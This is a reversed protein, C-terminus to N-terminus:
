CCPKTQWTWTGVGYNSPNFLGATYNMVQSVDIKTTDMTMKAGPTVCDQQGACYTFYQTASDPNGQGGVSQRLGQDEFQGSSAGALFFYTSWVGPVGTDYTMVAHFVNNDQGYHSFFWEISIGYRGTSILDVQYYIGQQSAGLIHGYTWFPALTYGPLNSAPFVLPSTDSNRSNASWQNQTAATVGLPTNTFWFNATVWLTSQVQGFIKWQIGYQSSLDLVTAHSADSWSNFYTNTGGPYDRTTQSNAALPGVPFPIPRALYLQLSQPSTTSGVTTSLWRGSHIGATNTMNTTLQVGNSVRGFLTCLGSSATWSFAYCPTSQGAAIDCQNACSDYTPQTTAGFPNNGPNTYDAACEIDYYRGQVPNVSLQGGEYKSMLNNNCIPDQPYALPFNTSTAQSLDATSSTSVTSSAGAVSTTTPARSTGVSTSSALSTTSTTATSAACLFSPNNYDTMQPYGAYLMRASNFTANGRTACTLTSYPFCNNTSGQSVDTVMFTVGLCSNARLANAYQCQNICDTLDFTLLPQATSGTFATACEIEFNASNGLFNYSYCTPSNGPCASASGTPAAACSTPVNSTTSTTPSSSTALSSSPSSVPAQTTTSTPTFVPDNISPYGAYLLRASDINASSVTGTISSLLLCNPSNGSSSGLYSVGVCGFPLAVNYNTCYGVCNKLSTATTSNGSLVAGQLGTACEVEYCYGDSNVNLAQHNYTSCLNTTTPTASCYSAATTSALPITTSASGSRSSTALSTSTLSSSSRSISQSTTAPGSSGPQSTSIPTVSVSTASSSLSSSGASSSLPNTSSSSGSSSRATTITSSQQQTTSPKNPGSSGGTSSSPSAQSSTGAITPSTSSQSIISTTTSLDQQISSTSQVDVSTSQSDSPVSSSSSLTSIGTTTTSTASTVTSSETTSTESSSVGTDSFVISPSYPKNVVIAAQAFSNAGRSVTGIDFKLHCPDTNALIDFEVAVCPGQSGPAYSSCADICEAIDSAAVVDLDFGPLDTDCLILYDNNVTGDFPSRDFCNPTGTTTPAPYASLTTSSTVPGSSSEPASSSSTIDTSSTSTTSTSVLSSSISATTPVTTVSTSTSAFNTSSSQMSTSISSASITSITSITSTQPLTTTSSTTSPNSNATPIVGIQVGICGPPLVGNFVVFLTSGSVCFIAQGGVFADNTWVLIDNEIISFLTFIRPLRKVLPAEPSAAFPQSSVDGSTSVYDSGSVLQGSSSIAFSAAQQTDNTVSGDAALYEPFGGLSFTLFVPEGLTITPTASASSTTSSSTYTAPCYSIGISITTGYCSVPLILRWALAIGSLVRWNM